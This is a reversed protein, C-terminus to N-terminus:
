KNLREHIKKKLLVLKSYDILLTLNKDIEEVCSACIVYNTQNYHPFLWRCKDNSCISNACKNCCYSPHYKECENCLDDKDIYKKFSNRENTNDYMFMTPDEM